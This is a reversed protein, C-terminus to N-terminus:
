LVTCEIPQVSIEVTLEEALRRLEVEVESMRTDAGSVVEMLVIYVSNQDEDTIRTEVDKINIGSRAMVDAVRYVIGPRDAGMVKVLYTDKQETAPAARDPAEPLEKVFIEIGVDRRVPDFRLSLDGLDLTRPVTVVLIMAFQGSLITMSTDRLNGGIEYLVRCVGAVIGPRDEGLATLAILRVTM